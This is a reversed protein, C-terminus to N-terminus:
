LLSLVVMPPILFSLFLCLPSYYFLFKKPPSLYFLFLTFHASFTYKHISPPDIYVYRYTYFPPREKLEPRRELPSIYTYIHVSFQNFLVTHTYRYTHICICTPWQYVYIREELTEICETPLPLPAGSSDHFSYFFLFFPQQFTVWRINYVLGGEEKM